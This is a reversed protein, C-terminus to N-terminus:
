EEESYEKIINQLKNVVEKKIYGKMRSVADAIIEQLDDITEVVYYYVTGYGYYHFGIDNDTKERWKYSLVYMKQEEFDMKFHFNSFILRDLFENYNEIIAFEKLEELNM